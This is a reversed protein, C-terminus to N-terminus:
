DSPARLLTLWQSRAVPEFDASRAWELPHTGRDDFQSARGVVVLDYDGQRLARVFARRSRHHRLGGKVQPGVYSVENGLEPGFMPYAPPTGDFANTGALGIRAGSPAHREVWDITADKGAFRRDDVKREVGLGAVAVALVAALAVAAGVLPRPLSASLRWVAFALAALLALAVLVEAVARAGPALSNHLGEAVVVLLALEAWPTFRGLLQLGWALLPAALMLAPLLYRANQKVLIPAGEEGLASYPTKLYVAVLLLTAAAMFAVPMLGARAAVGARGLRVLRALALAFGVVLAPGALGLADRYAPVLYTRWVDLDFLYEAVSHGFREAYYDPPVDFLPGVGSPFVPSGSEVWNRVLWFGGFLVLLGAVAAVRLSVWRPDRARWLWVGAWFTVFVVVAPVAYWKSGFAIGLAAGGVVLDWGDRTRLHRVLFLAGAGLMAAAVADPLALAVTPYLLTYTSTVIAAAVLGTSRPVRLERCLAFVVLGAMALYPVTAFRAFADDGWPLVAALIPVDGNQPYNGAALGPEFQAIGWMSQNGIWDAVVAFHYNLTDSHVIQNAFDKRLFALVWTAVMGVAVVGIALTWLPEPATDDAPTSPRARRRYLPWCAALLLVSCALASWRTLVGLAGPLVHSLLLAATFLVSWAVWWTAGRPGDLRGRLLLAAVAAASGATAAFILLGVAYEGGAM